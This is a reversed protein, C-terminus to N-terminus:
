LLTTDVLCQTELFAAWESPDIGLRSMMDSFPFTRSKAPLLSPFTVLGWTRTYVGKHTRTWVQAMSQTTEPSYWFLPWIIVHIFNYCACVQYM